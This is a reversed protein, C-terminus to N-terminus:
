TSLSLILSPSLPPPLSLSLSHSLHLSLPPPLSLHLSLLPLSLSLSHSLHSISLCVSSLQIPHRADFGVTHPALALVTYLYAGRLEQRCGVPFVLLPPLTPTDTTHTHTHTHTLTHTHTHTPTHTHTHGTGTMSTREILLVGQSPWVLSPQM